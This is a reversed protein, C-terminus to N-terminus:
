SLLSLPSLSLNLPRSLATSLSRDLLLLFFSFVHFFTSAFLAAPMHTIAHKHARRSRQGMHTGVTPGSENWKGEKKLWGEHEPNFFMISLSEDDEPDKFPTQM